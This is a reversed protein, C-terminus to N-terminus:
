ESYGGDHNVIRGITSKSSGFRIALVRQMVGDEHLFRIEEVARDSLKKTAQFAATKKRHGESKPKGNHAAGIKARHEASLPRGRHFAGIKAKHEKTPKHGLAPTKGKRAARLKKKTEETHPIGLRFQNGKYRESIKKCHEASLKTGRRAASMKARTELGFKRGLNSGAIPNMNFGVGQKTASLSDIHFQERDLLDQKSCYELVSFKFAAEGYKNWSYQLHPNCHRRQELDHRHNCWRKTIIVASGVYIRGSAICTILYIGSQWNVGRKSTLLEAPALTRKLSM